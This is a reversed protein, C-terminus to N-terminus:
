PTPVLGALKKDVVFKLICIDICVCICVYCRVCVTKRWISDESIFFIKEPSHPAHLRCWVVLLLKMMDFAHRALHMLNECLRCWGSSLFTVNCLCRNSIECVYVTVRFTKWSSKGLSFSFYKRSRKFYCSCTENERSANGEVKVIVWNINSQVHVMELYASRLHM